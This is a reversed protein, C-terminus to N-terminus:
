SEDVFPQDPPCIVLRADPSGALQAILGRTRTVLSQADETPKILEILWTALDRRDAIDNVRRDLGFQQTSGTALKVILIGTRDERLVLELQTIAREKGVGRLTYGRFSRLALATRKNLWPKTAM